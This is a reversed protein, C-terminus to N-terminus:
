KHEERYKKLYEIARDIDKQQTRKDGACLLVIVVDGVMSYYVRYGQGTDIVLEWVGARCPKHTGFNGSEVRDIARQIAKRSQRDRLKDLWTQFIDRGNEEYHVIEYRM